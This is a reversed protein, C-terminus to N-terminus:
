ESVGFYFYLKRGVVSFHVTGVLDYNHTFIQLLKVIDPTFPLEFLSIAITTRVLVM